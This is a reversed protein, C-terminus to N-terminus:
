NNPCKFKGQQNLIVQFKEKLSINGLLANLSQCCVVRNEDKNVGGRSSPLLHEVSAEHKAMTKKCFFCHNGQIFLLRKLPKNAICDESIM